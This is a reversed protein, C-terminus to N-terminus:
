RVRVRCSGPTEPRTRTNIFIQHSGPKGPYLGRQLAGDMAGGILGDMVRETGTLKSARYHGLMLPEAVFTLDGNTVTIRM